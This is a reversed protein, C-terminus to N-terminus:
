AATNGAESHESLRQANGMVQGGADIVIEQYCTTGAVSGTASIHLRKAVTLNGEFHGHIEATDVEASGIFHGGRGVMLHGARATAELHGEVLLEACECLKAVLRIGRGVTLVEGDAAAPEPSEASAGAEEPQGAPPVEPQAQVAAPEIRTDPVADALEIAHEGTAPAAVATEDTVPGPEPEVDAIAAPGEAPAEFEPVDPRPAERAAMSQAIDSAPAPEHRSEVSSAPQPRADPAPASHHQVAEEPLAAPQAPVAPTPQLLEDISPEPDRRATAPAPDSGATGASGAAQQTSEDPAAAPEPPETRGAESAYRTVRKL